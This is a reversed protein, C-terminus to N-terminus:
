KNIKFLLKSMNDYLDARDASKLVVSIYRNERDDNSSIVLCSGAAITTGTKGAEVTIGSPAKIQGTIYKNGNRWTKKVQSGDAGIYEVNYSAAGAYTVFRPDKLAENFILYLDYATTYHNPDTLGNANAFNTDVACIRKAEDNMMNVFNDIDGGIHVAIANAADNGSPLMLGYLLQDLTLTDGPKVGALSAGAEDIVSEETVTIEDNLNGYKLALLATMVKTTSAPNMKKTDAKAALLNGGKGALVVSESSIDEINTDDESPLALDKAIPKIDINIDFKSLRDAFDYRTIMFQYYYVAGCIALVIIFMPILLYIHKKRKRSTKVFDAM